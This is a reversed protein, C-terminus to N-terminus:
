VQERTLRVMLYAVVRKIAIMESESLIRNEVLFDDFDSGIHKKNMNTRRNIKCNLSSNLYIQIHEQASLSFNM